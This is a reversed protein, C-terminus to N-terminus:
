PAPAPTADPQPTTFPADEGRAIELAEALGQQVGRDVLPQFLM